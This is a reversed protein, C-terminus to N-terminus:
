IRKLLSQPPVRVCSKGNKGNENEGKLLETLECHRQLFDLGKETAVYVKKGTADFKALLRIKMMYKLYENLQAFNLNAKYM